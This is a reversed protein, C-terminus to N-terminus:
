NPVPYVGECWSVVATIITMPSPRDISGSAQIISSRSTRGLLLILVMSHTHDVSHECPTGIIDDGLDRVLNSAHISRIIHIRHAPHCTNGVLM